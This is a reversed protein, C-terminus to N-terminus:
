TPYDFEGAKVGRVVAAIEAQIFLLAHGSADRPNCLTSLPGNGPRIATLASWMPKVSSIAHCGSSTSTVIGRFLTALRTDSQSKSREATSDATPHTRM